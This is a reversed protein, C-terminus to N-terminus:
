GKGNLTSKHDKFCDILQLMTKEPIRAIVKLFKTLSNYEFVVTLYEGSEINMACLIVVNDGKPLWPEGRKLRLILYIHKTLEVIAHCHECYTILNSLEVDWPNEGEYKLHHVHLPTSVDKCLQCQFNDRKFVELRKGQWRPDKLREGYTKYIESMSYINFRRLNPPIAPVEGM